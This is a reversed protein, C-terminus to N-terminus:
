GQNLYYDSSTPIEAGGAQWVALIEAPTNGKETIDEDFTGAFILRQTSRKWTGNIKRSLIVSYAIVDGGEISYDIYGTDASLKLAPDTTTNEAFYNATGNEDWAMALMEATLEDKLIYRSEAWYFEGAMSRLGCITIQDGAQAGLANMIDSLKANEEPIAGGFAVLNGEVVRVEISPITGKSILLGVGALNFSEPTALGVTEISNAGTVQMEPYNAAIFSRIDKCAEKMFFNQSRVGYPVGEFSHDVISIMRSYAKAATAMIMRQLVQGTTKPNKVNAAKIRALQEGKPGKYGVINGLKGNVTVTSTQKAM